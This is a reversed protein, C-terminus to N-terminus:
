TIAISTQYKTDNINIARCQVKDSMSKWAGEKFNFLVNTGLSARQKASSPRSTSEVIWDILSSLHCCGETGGVYGGTRAWTRIGSNKAWWGEGQGRM